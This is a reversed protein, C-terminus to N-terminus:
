DVDVGVTKHKKDTILTGMGRGTVTLQRRMRLRDGHAGRRRLEGVTGAARAVHHCLHGVWDPSASKYWVSTIDFFSSPRAGLM